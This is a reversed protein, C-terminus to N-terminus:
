TPKGEQEAKSHCPIAKAALCRILVIMGAIAPVGYELFLGLKVTGWFFDHLM